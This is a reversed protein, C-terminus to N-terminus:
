GQNRVDELTDAKIMWPTWSVVSSPKIKLNDACLRVLMGVPLLLVFYFFTLLVRAQFDAVKHGFAKWKKWFIKLAKM